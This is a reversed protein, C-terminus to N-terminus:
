LQGYATNSSFISPNYIANSVGLQGCRNKFHQERCNNSTSTTDTTTM